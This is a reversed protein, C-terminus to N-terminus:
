SKGETALKELAEVTAANAPPRGHVACAATLEEPTWPMMMPGSYANGMYANSGVAVPGQCIPCVGNLPSSPAPAWLRSWANRLRKRRM